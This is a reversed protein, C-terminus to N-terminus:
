RNPVACCSNPRRRRFLMVAVSAMVALVVSSPEPIVLTDFVYEVAAEHAAEDVGSAAVWYLSDSEALGTGTLTTALLYVGSAPSDMGEGSEGVLDFVLHTHVEGAEDAQAFDFGPASHIGDLTVSQAVATHSIRMAHDTPSPGFSVAGAGDWYWLSRSDSELTIAPVNFGILTEPPLGHGGFGPDDFRYAPLLGDGFEAEAIRHESVLQGDEVELHIDAHQASVNAACIM